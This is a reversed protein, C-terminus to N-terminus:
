IGKRRFVLDIELYAILTYRDSLFNIIKDADEKYNAEIDIYDIEVKNWNIGRLVSMEGGEVDISLYDVHTIKHKDFLSELRKAVVSIQKQNGGRDRIENSIRTVHNPNYEDIIGTLMESYGEIQCIEVETDEHYAAVNECICKRNQVLKNYVLPNAEICLGTWNKDKEFFYSNSITIGDHAGVDVFIGNEKGKFVDENFFRDQQCQSYYLQM